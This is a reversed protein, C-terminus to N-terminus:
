ALKVRVFAEELVPMGDTEKRIIYGNQNTAAYLEVLVQISMDLADNIWYNSFDGVIGVYLGTTFTSPAYESMLVPIDLITDGRDGQLGPRWIYQGEGDKLKRIQKVGDRHFIWRSRGWYNGKLTYKAEILGDGRIETITNGTSVDRGTSIGQASATFVGLPRNNGNGNLFAKEETIGVKYGLRGTVLSDINLASARVLKKSVKMLKATPHPRLERKGFSMTTDEDGTLLEATWDSDAPDNDLAPAGMSEAKPFSFTTALSRMFTADDVAKILQAVFAESQVTYGGATDSDMQLAREEIIQRARGTTHEGNVLYTRFAQNYEEVSIGDDIEPVAIRQTIPEDLASEIESLRQEKKERNRIAEVQKEIEDVEAEIANYKKNDEATLNENSDLIARMEKILGVRKELLEKITM